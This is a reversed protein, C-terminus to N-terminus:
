RCVILKLSLAALPAAWSTAASYAGPRLQFNTVGGDNEKVFANQSPM